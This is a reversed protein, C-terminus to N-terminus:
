TMSAAPVSASGAQNVTLTCIGQLKFGFFSSKTSKERRAVGKSVKHSLIYRNECVSVPTSDVSFVSDTCLIRNLYLQYQVFAIIFGASKNSAKMFNEYNTLSPFYVKYHNEANKHFTKLDGTRDFFRILNLIVADAIPMRRKPAGKGYQMALNKKGASTELFRHIFDDVICYLTILSNETM